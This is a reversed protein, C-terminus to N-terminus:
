FKYALSSIVGYDSNSAEQSIPDSDFNAYITLVWFLDNMFELRFDTNFDARWRGFDTVSPYISFNTTLNREPDTYRYYEYVLKGVAELNVESEGEVPIEYNVSLGATLLFMSNSSRIPNWGYGAGALTRLDIGLERNSDVQAFYNIFRKNPKFRIHSINANARRTDDAGDLTTVESSIGAYNIFRPDRFVSDIAFNYKGVESAKDWSFGLSASLDLRDWFGAEVPYMGIIDMNGVGVAGQETEISVMEANESKQLPGLFRQGNTLEVSQSTDSIVAEIDAWEIYVTGMSDTSFELKGRLLGKVEGTVKDGNKLVVIDTKEALAPSSILLLLLFCLFRSLLRTM